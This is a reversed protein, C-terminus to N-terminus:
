PNKAFCNMQGNRSNHWRNYSSLTCAISHPITRGLHKKLSSIFFYVFKGSLSRRRLTNREGESTTVQGYKVGSLYISSLCSLALIPPLSFPPLRWPARSACISPLNRCQGCCVCVWGCVIIILTVCPRRIHPQPPHPLDRACYKNTAIQKPRYVRGTSAIIPWLFRRARDIACRVSRGTYMRSWRSNSRWAISWAILSLDDLISTTTTCVCMHPNSHGTRSTSSMFPIRYRAM